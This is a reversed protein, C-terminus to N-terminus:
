AANGGSDPYFRGMWARAGPTLEPEARLGDVSAAFTPPVGPIQKRWQNGHRNREVTQRANDSHTGVSLHAPNICNRVDCSHLVIAGDPIPGVFTEYAVRHVRKATPRHDRSSFTPAIYGYGGTRREGVWLWCGNAGM